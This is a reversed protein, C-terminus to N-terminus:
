NKAEVTIKISEPNGLKELEVKPIYVVGWGTVYRIQNKTEREKAGVTSVTSNDENDAM